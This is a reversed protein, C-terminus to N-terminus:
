ETISDNAFGKTECFEIKGKFPLRVTKHLFGRGCERQSEDPERKGTAGSMPGKRRPWKGSNDIEWRPIEELVSYFINFSENPNPPPDPDPAALVDGGHKSLRISNPGYDPEINVVEGLMWRLAITSNESGNGGGIDSHCGEFWVEKIDQSMIKKRVDDPLRGWAGAFNGKSDLRRDLDLGGWTTHHFFARHEHLALAHRVHKVIPNHRLHPLMVPHIIGYSKVTDWLGMFHIPCERQTKRFEVAETPRKLPEYYGWAKDFCAGSDLGGKPALGCRYLLGALARVTFAGRSFGFLFILDDDEEHNQALTVYLQKVNEKLGVGMTKGFFRHLYSAPWRLDSNSVLPVLNRREWENLHKYYEKFEKSQKEATGLGQDYVVLQNDEKKLSLCRVMRSVNTESDFTNGTGDSCLIIKKRM